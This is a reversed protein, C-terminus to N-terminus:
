RTQGAPLAVPSVSWEDRISEAAAAAAMSAVRPTRFFNLRGSLCGTADATAKAM